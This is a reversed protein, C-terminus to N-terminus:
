LTGCIATVIRYRLIVKLYAPTRDERWHGKERYM